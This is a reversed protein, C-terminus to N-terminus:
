FRWGCARRRPWPRSAAILLAQMAVLTKGAGVDGQLLRNMRQPQALDEAIEAIARSQAGTPEYPLSGLM